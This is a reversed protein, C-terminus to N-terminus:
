RPAEHSALGMGHAVFDLYVRRSSVDGLEHAVAFIEAEQL